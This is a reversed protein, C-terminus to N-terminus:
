YRSKLAGIDRSLISRSLSSSVHTHAHILTHNATTQMLEAKVALFMRQKWVGAVGECPVHIERM